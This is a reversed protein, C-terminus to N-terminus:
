LKDNKRLQNLLAKFDKPIQAEVRIIKNTRYHKFEISKAHLTLRRILPKEEEDEKKQYRSKIESLFLAERGGYVPDVALPHGIAQFHVRIQHMRGTLLEVEVLTFRKFSELVKYNTIAKKGAYRYIKMTGPKGKREAVPLNISNDQKEIKGNVIAVYNKKVDRKEFKISLDRHAAQNKAFVIVGSTDADLRHVIFINGYKLKLINYLNPIEQNFRDPVSLMGAPKNIIVFDDDEYLIELNKMM